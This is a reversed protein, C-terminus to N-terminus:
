RRIYAGKRFNDNLDDNIFKIPIPYKRGAKYRIWNVSLLTRFVATGCRREPPQLSSPNPAFSPHPSSLPPTSQALDCSRCRLSVRVTLFAPLLRVSRKREGIRRSDVSKDSDTILTVLFISGREAVRSSISCIGICARIHDIVKGGGGRSSSVVKLVLM